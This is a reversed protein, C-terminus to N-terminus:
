DIMALAKEKTDVLGMDQADRIKKLIKGMEPGPKIGISILDKGTILNKQDLKIKIKKYYESLLGALMKIKKKKESELSLIGQKSMLDAMGIIVLPVVDEKNKKYWRFRTKFNVREEALDAAQMHRGILTKLFMADMKSMHLRCAIQDALEAGKKDHGYFVIRGTKKNLSKTQSKGIDHLLAAIKMLPLRSESAINKILDNATSPFFEIRNKIIFECKKLVEVSHRWVTQHHYGNQDCEKIGRIEPFIIELVGTNQMMDVFKSSNHVSFIKLLEYLIREVASSALLEAYITMEALTKKEITFNLEAALRFGRLIRLPDARFADKGAVKIIRNELDSIGNLPDILESHNGNSDIKLAMANVTFDRLELDSYITAGRIPSIDLSILRKQRDVVRYCPEDHKKEFPVVIADRNKVIQMATAKANHCALDIDNVPQALFYDRVSGGVLYTTQFNNKLPHLWNCLTETIRPIKDSLKKIRNKQLKM